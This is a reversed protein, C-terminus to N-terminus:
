PLRPSGPPPRWGGPGCTPLDAASFGGPMAGAPRRCKRQIPMPRRSGWAMASGIAWTSNGPRGCSCPGSPTPVLRPRRPITSSGAPLGPRYGVPPPWSTGVWVLQSAFAEPTRGLVLFDYEPMEQLVKELEQPHWAVWHLARDLDCFHLQEAGAELALQLVQRRVQGLRGRSPPHGDETALVGAERLQRVAEPATTRSCLVALRAYRAKLEDLHRALVPMWRGEPDHHTAALVVPADGAPLEPERM